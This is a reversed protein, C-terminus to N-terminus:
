DLLHQIVVPDAKRGLCEIVQKVLKMLPSAKSTKVYMEVIEPNNKVVTEVATKLDDSIRVEGTFGLDAAIDTPM